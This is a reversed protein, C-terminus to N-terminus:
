PGVVQKFPVRGYLLRNPTGSRLSTLVGTTANSVLYHNLSAQSQFGDRQIVVAAVGSAHGAAYSSGDAFTQAVHWGPAFLDICPGYNSRSIPIDSNTLTESAAVTLAAPVRAPSVNCADVNDQGAAIVVYLGSDILAQVASEVKSYTGIAGLSLNVVAPRKAHVRVWELGTLLDRESGETDCNRVKVSHLLANKAAGWTAGGIVEAVLTAHNCWRHDIVPPSVLASFDATARSGFEADSTHVGDDVIYVNVGAGTYNYVFQQDVPLSRQDLRDLGSQWPFAEVCVFMPSFHCDKQPLAASAVSPASVALPVALLVGVVARAIRNLM